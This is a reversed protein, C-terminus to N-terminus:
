AGELKAKLGALGEEFDPGMMSDMMLGFWKQMMSDLTGEQIWRVEVQGDQVEYEFKGQNRFEGGDFELDYRLGTQLDSATIQLRGEGFEEGTWSMAQGVGQDPGEYQWQLTPDKDATWASWESWTRLDSLVAHIAEPTAQITVKRKVEFRDPLLFGGAVFALVLVALIRILWMFIKM